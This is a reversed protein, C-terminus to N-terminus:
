QAYWNQQGEITIRYQTPLNSFPPFSSVYDTNPFLWAPIGTAMLEQLMSRGEEPSVSFKKAIETYHPASGKAVMSEMLFHYVEDMVGKEAM